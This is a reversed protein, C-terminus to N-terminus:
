VPKKLNQADGVLSRKNQHSFLVDIKLKAMKITTKKYDTCHTMQMVIAEQM